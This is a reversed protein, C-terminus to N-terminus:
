ERLRRRLHEETLAEDYRLAILRVGRERCLRAKRRDRRQLERWALEGGWAEVPAFHQEGQFEFALEREPLYLDLELGALWRPRSRRRLPEDPFLRAVAQALLPEAILGEGVPALGFDLRALSELHNKVARLCRPALWRLRDLRDPPDLGYPDARPLDLMAREEAEAEPYRRAMEEELKATVRHLRLVIRRLPAPCAKRRLRLGDLDLGNRYYAQQVYWGHSQLFRGGDEPGCFRLAPVARQCRHCLGDGRPLDLLVGPDTRELSAQVEQRRGPARRPDAGKARDDLAALEPVVEAILAAPLQWWARAAAGKGRRAFRVLSELAPTACACLWAPGGEAAFGLFSGPRPPYHVWPRPLAERHRSRDAVPPPASPPM